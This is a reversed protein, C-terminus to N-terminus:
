SLHLSLISRVFISFLLMSADGLTLTKTPSIPAKKLTHRSRLSSRTTSTPSSHVSAESEYEAGRSDPQDDLPVPLTPLSDPPTSIRTPPSSSSTRSTSTSLSLKQLEQPIGEWGSTDAILMQTGQCQIVAGELYQGLDSYVSLERIGDEIAWRVARRLTEVLARREQESIKTSRVRAQSRNHSGSNNSPLCLAVHHPITTRQNNSLPRAFSESIRLLLSFLTFSLHLLVLLPWAAARVIVGPM